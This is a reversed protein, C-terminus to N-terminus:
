IRRETLKMLPPLLAGSRHAIAAALFLSPPASTHVIRESQQYPLSTPKSTANSIFGGTKFAIRLVGYDQQNETDRLWAEIVASAGSKVQPSLIWNRWPKPDWAAILRPLHLEAELRTQITKRLTSSIL